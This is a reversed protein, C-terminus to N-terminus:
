VNREYNEIEVSGSLMKIAEVINMSMYGIEFCASTQSIKTSLTKRDLHKQRKVQSKKQFYSVICVTKLGYSILKSM